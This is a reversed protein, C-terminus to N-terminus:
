GELRWGGSDLRCAIGETRRSYSGTALLVVIHRCVRGGADMFSATPQVVGSLRGHRRRWVYSSGDSVETLALHVAELTAIEDSVLFDPTMEAYKPRPWLREREDKGTDPCNCGSSSATTKEDTRAAKEDTRMQGSLLPALILAVGLCLAVATDVTVCSPSRM